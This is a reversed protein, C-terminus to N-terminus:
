PPTPARSRSWRIAIEVDWGEDTDHRNAPTGRHHVASKMDASWEFDSGQHRNTAFWADLQANNPNVQLEVYGKRNGDADIFLEVVDAKWLSDDKVTYESFIDTDSSEIFAYLNDDDWLLKARTKQGISQGGETDSFAPSWEAAAWSEEDAKGDIAIAGKARKIVYTKRELKPAAGKPAVTLRVSMIRSEKDHPGSVISMRGNTGQSGKRWMGVGIQAYPSKWDGKLVIEQEDRIIQGKKWKDPGHGARMQTYDVNMWDNPSAGIVHTFVRWDSGPPDIVKWYHTVKFKDGPRLTQKDVDAGLYVVKGGLDANVVLGVTPAEALINKEIYASDPPKQDTKGKPEREVCSVALVLLAAGLVHSRM